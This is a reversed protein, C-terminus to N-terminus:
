NWSTSTTDLGASSPARSLTTFASSTSIAGLAKERAKRLGPFFGQSRPQIAGADRVRAAYTRPSSCVITLGFSTKIISVGNCYPLFHYGVYIVTCKFPPYYKSLRYSRLTYRLSSMFVRASRVRSTVFPMVCLLSQLDKRSVHTVSLLSTCRSHFESLNDPTVWSSVSAVYSFAAAAKTPTKAGEFADVSTILVLTASIRACLLSPSLPPM